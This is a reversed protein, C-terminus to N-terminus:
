FRLRFQVRINQDKVLENRLYNSYGYRLWLTFKQNLNYRIMLNFKQGTGYYAPMSYAYLVDHEYAYIRSYYDKVDFWAYRVLLAINDKFQYRADQYILYGPNYKIGTYGSQSWEFRNAMTLKESLKYQLHIRFSEREFPHLIKNTQEESFLNKEKTKRKYRIVLKFDYSPSFTLQAMYDVGHLPGNANYSLWPFSFVDTYASLNIKWNTIWNFGLFTGYENNMNSNESFVASYPSNYQPPLNRHLATASFNESILLNIGNISAFSKGNHATEGFFQMRKLMFKYDFSAGLFQNGTFNYHQYIKESPLLPFAYQIALLNLGLVVRSTNCGIRSGITTENLANKRLLELSDSHYGTTYITQAGYLNELSDLSADQTKNSAFVQISVPGFGSTLAVGRFFNFENKSTNPHMGQGRKQMALIEVSKGPSFGNWTLLGQGSKVRYDGIIVSPIAKNIKFALHASYFDFGKRKPGFSIKEGVDNEAIIGFKIKNRYNVLFRYYMSFPMGSNQKDLPSSYSSRGILEYMSKEIIKKLQLTDVCRKEGIVIFPRILDVTKNTFGFLYTLEAYSVIEGAKKRYDILSKIQFDNLLWLKQLENETATNINVPNQYFGQLDEIISEADIDPNEDNAIGEISNEIYSQLEANSEQSFLTTNFIFCLYILVSKKM